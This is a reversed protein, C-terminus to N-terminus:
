PWNGNSKRFASWIRHPCSKTHLHWEMFVIGLFSFHQLLKDKFFYFNLIKRLRGLVFSFDSFDQARCQQLTYSSHASILNTNRLQQQYFAPSHFAGSVDPPLDIWGLKSMVFHRCMGWGAVRCIKEQHHNLCCSRWGRWNVFQSQSLPLSNSSPFSKIQHRCEWM